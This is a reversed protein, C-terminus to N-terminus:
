ALQHRREPSPMQHVKRALTMSVVLGEAPRPLGVVSWACHLATLPKHDVSTVRPQKGVPIALDYALDREIM